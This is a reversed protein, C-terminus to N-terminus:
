STRVTAVSAAPLVPAEVTTVLRWMSLKAGVAVIVLGPVGSRPVTVSAEVLASAALPM